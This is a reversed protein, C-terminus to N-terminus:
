RQRPLSHSLSCLYRFSTLEPLQRPSLLYDRSSLFSRSGGQDEEEEDEEESSEDEDDEERWKRRGVRSFDELKVGEGVRVGDGILCGKGITSGKGV